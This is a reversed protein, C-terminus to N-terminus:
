VHTQQHSILGSQQIFSKGCESCVFPKEGAHLRQHVALHSTRSFCKGCETCPFTREGIHTRLHSNLGTKQRFSKGCESCSYPKEGTHIRQHDALQSNRFFSKGCERCPYPREGSHTQQHCILASRHSFTKGCEPCCFPKEGSHTRQHATLHERRPFCKGCETCLYTRVGTHTRQHNTLVSKQKFSKGCESCSYPKEMSHIGQHATLQTSRSFCKGCEFCAFPKEGSHSREHTVLSNKYAFCKGCEACSFPKHGSHVVQHTVLELNQDFSKGCELCMLSKKGSDMQHKSILDSSPTDLLLLGNGDANGSGVQVSIDGVPPLMVDMLTDPELSGDSWYSEEKVHFYLYDPRLDSTEINQSLDNQIVTSPSPDQTRGAWCDGVLIDEKIEEKVIITMYDMKTGMEKDLFGDFSDTEEKIVRGTLQKEAEQQFDPLPLSLPNEMMFHKYLDKHAELYEWEELSFYLTVDQCRLPVEGTLLEMMKNVIELIKKTNRKLTLSHPQPVRITMLDDFKMPTYKEGTLFYIIELTLDLIKVTMHSQDEGM